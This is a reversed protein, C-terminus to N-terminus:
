WSAPPCDCILWLRGEHMTLRPNGRASNGLGRSGAVLTFRSLEYRAGSLTVVAGLGASTKACTLRPGHAQPADELDVGQEAGGARGATECRHPHSAFRGRWRHRRRCPGLVRPRVPPWSRAFARARLAPVRSDPSRKAREAPASVARRSPPFARAQLPKSERPRSTRWNNAGWGRCPSHDRALTTSNGVFDVGNMGLM